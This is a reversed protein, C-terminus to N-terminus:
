HKAIALWRSPHHNEPNDAYDLVYPKVLRRSIYFFLPALPQDALMIREAEEFLEKRKGQDVTDAAQDLLADYRQDVFGTNNLGGDSRLLELFTNADDYDGIWNDAFAGTENMLKRNELYVKFEQNVLTTEVGLTSKWMASIAVMLRKSNENTSYLIQVSLPKSPGYGAEAYLTRAQADRRDQSWSASEPAQTDYNAIYPPVWSYAPIYDGLLIKDILTGRDIALSLAQRLKLNDKFPSKTQNFGLSATGLYPAVHLESALHRKIWGLQDLPVGSTMELGGGRYRILETGSNEIPIFQVEQLRVQDAQWFYPNKELVVKSQPIWAALRFPGDSVLHGPHTFQNGYREIAPRYAPYTAPHVLLALIYPTPAHLTVRVTHADLAEVGLAEPKARGTTVAEANLIPYLVFSYKSGVTPDVARRMGYVFDEATLPAGNSWKANPWLHFTYVKHDDSIEWSQAAGPLLAGKPGETLLGEFLDKVINFDPVSEVKQPDLSSPESGNGRRLIQNEALSEARAAHPVSLVLLAFMLSSAIRLRCQM